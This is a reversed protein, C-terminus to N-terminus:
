KLEYLYVVNKSNKSTGKYYKNWELTVYSELCVRYKIREDVEFRTAQRHYEIGFNNEYRYDLQNGSILHYPAIRVYSTKFNASPSITVYSTICSNVFSSSDPRPQDSSIIFHEVFLGYEYNNNTLFIFIIITFLARLSEVKRMNIIFITNILIGPKLRAM